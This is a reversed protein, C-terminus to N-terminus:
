ESEKTTLGAERWGGLRRREEDWLKLCASRMGDLFSLTPVHHFIPIADHTTVRNLARRNAARASREERV